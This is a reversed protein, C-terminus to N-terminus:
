ILQYPKQDQLIIDGALSAIGAFGVSEIKVNVILIAARIAETHTDGFRTGSGM